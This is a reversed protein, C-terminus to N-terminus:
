MGAEKLRRVQHSDHDPTYDGFLKSGFTLPSGEVAVETKIAGPGGPLPRPDGAKVADAAALAEEAHVHTFANVREDLAEIRELSTEVLERASLEGSGVLEALDTFPRFLLDADM